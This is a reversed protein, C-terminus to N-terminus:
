PPQTGPVVSFDDTDDGIPDVYATEVSAGVTVDSRVTGDVIGDGRDGASDDASDGASDDGTLTAGSGDDVNRFAALTRGRVGPM